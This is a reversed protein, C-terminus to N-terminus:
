TSFEVPMCPGHPVAGQGIHLRLGEAEQMVAEGRMLNIGLVGWCSPTACAEALTVPAWIQGLPRPPLLPSLQQQEPPVGARLLSSTDKDDVAEPADASAAGAVVHTRRQPSSSLPNKQPPPLLQVLDALSELAGPAAAGSHSTFGVLGCPTALLRAGSAPQELITRCTAACWQMNTGAAPTLLSALAAPALVAGDGSKLAAATTHTHMHSYM